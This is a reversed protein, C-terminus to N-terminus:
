SGRAFSEPPLDGWASFMRAMDTWIKPEAAANTMRPMEATLEYRNGGPSWLYTYLNGGVGHRGPHTETLLGAQAFYDCANKIHEWSVLTWCLHDLTEGENRRQMMAVDHHYEGVRTWAAGWVGPAPSFAESVRFDLVTTLFDALGKIDDARLTIHDVDIPNVGGFTKKVKSLAPHIHTQANGRLTVLEMGHGSPLELALATQVGPNPDTHTSTSVGVEALRKAYHDLDDQNEVEIAFSQVGTGGQTLSLDIYDDYGCRLFVRDGDRTVEELGLVDTCFAIEKDLDNVRLEAYSLKQLGVTVKREDIRRNSGRIESAACGM